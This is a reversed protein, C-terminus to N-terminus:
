YLIRVKITGSVCRLAEAIDESIPGSVDFLAYGLESTTRLTEGSINFGKAALM